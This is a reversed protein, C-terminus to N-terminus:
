HTVEELEKARSASLALWCADSEIKYGSLGTDVYFRCNLTRYRLWQRQVEQLERGRDPSLKNKASRYATNLRAELLKSEKMQCEQIAYTVGKADAICKSFKASYQNSPSSAHCVTSAAFLLGFLVWASPIHMSISAWRSKYRVCSRYIKALDGMFIHGLGRPVENAQECLFLSLGPLRDDADHSM